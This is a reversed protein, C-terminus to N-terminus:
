YIIALDEFPKFVSELVQKDSIVFNYQELLDFYHRGVNPFRKKMFPEQTELELLRSELVLRWESFKSEKIKQKNDKEATILRRYGIYAVIMSLMAGLLVGNKLLIDKFTIICNLSLCFHLDKVNSFISVSSFLLLIAIIAIFFWDVFCKIKTLIYRM